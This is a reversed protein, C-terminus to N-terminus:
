KYYNLKRKNEIEMDSWMKNKFKTKEMSFTNLYGKSAKECEM